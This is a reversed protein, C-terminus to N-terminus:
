CTANLSLLTERAKERLEPRVKTLPDKTLDELGPPAFLKHQTLMAYAVRNFKNGVAIRIAKAHKGKLREAFAKFYANGKGQILNKGIQYNTRRLYKNGQKSIKMQGRYRGSECPVPNTGAMKIIASASPFKSIQFGIEAMWEAATVPGIYPTSLLLIGPSSTLIEESRQELSDIEKSIRTISELLQRLHQLYNELLRDDLKPALEASKLILEIRRKGLSLNETKSLMSLGTQGLKLAQEPSNVRSLFRISIDNWTDSFIRVLKPKGDEIEPVGQIYPWFHDLLTHLMTYYKSREKVLTRRTRTLFQLQEEDFSPTTQTMVKGGAVAAAIAYLDLDDTKSYDLLSNREEKTTVSNILFIHQNRAQLRSMIPQHYHGTNEIGYVINKKGTQIATNTVAEIVQNIGRDDPTFFFSEGLPEVFYDFVRTKPETKSTDIAVILVNHPEFDKGFLSKFLRGRQGLRTKGMM